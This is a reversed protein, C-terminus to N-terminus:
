FGSVVSDFLALVKQGVAAVAAVIVISTLGAIMAYEIATAGEEERLLRKVCRLM